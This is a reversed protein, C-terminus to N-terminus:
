DRKKIEPSTGERDLGALLGVIRGNQSLVEEEEGLLNLQIQTPVFICKANKTVFRMLAAKEMKSLRMKYLYKMLLYKHVVNM